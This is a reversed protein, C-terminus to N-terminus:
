VVLRVTAALLKTRDACPGVLIEIDGPEFVPELHLDLFCLESAPLSLTVTGSEGPLLSIKGFGKLELKPRSVSAVKDHAFLFVTEQAERAGRNIVDVQITLADNIGIASASVKLNSFEFRGYTLGFGFPFLPENAVDLYKSTFRDQADFPRGSPRESFFIPVQGAARPWSVPTRGSPSLRGTLVDAIANGAESGLFWAALVANAREVLWPV